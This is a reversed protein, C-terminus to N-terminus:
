KTKEFKKINLIKMSHLKAIITVFLVQAAYKIGNVYSIEKGYYTPIAVESIKYKSFLLQIIIETDFPYDDSNKDFKIKKITQIKYARYGSHFESLNSSLVLNQIFTLIKNGVFKYIPMGGKLAGWKNIMRSGFVADNNFKILNSILNDIFEPAYQGDGHLLVVYDFHNKIAYKYGIKQNGGYGINKKNFILNLKFHKQIKKKNNNIVQLTKDQSKDDSILIEIKYKYNLLKPIRKLTNIIFEEHNYTVIYILIKPKM